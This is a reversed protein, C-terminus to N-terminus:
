PFSSSLIFVNGTATHTGNMDIWNEIRIKLKVDNNSLEIKRNAKTSYDRNTEVTDNSGRSFRFEYEGKPLELTIKFKDHSLRTLKFREDKYNWSNFDGALYIDENLPTYYQPVSTLELELKKHQKTRELTVVLIITISAILLVTFLISMATLVKLKKPDM